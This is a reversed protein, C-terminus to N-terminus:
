DYSKYYKYNLSRKILGCNDNVRIVEMRQSSLMVETLCKGFYWFRANEDYYLHHEVREISKMSDFLDNFSDSYQKKTYIKLFKLQPVFSQVDTFFHETLKSYNFDLEYLQKCHKFCEVSGSLVRNNKLSLKLKKIAKFETFVDFFRKSIPISENIILDSKLLKTCKRGILSLCDDIPESMEMCGIIFELQRLNQLRSIYEIGENFEEGTMYDFSVNLRKMTHSFKNSM